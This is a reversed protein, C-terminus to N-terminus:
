KTIKKKLKKREEKRKEKEEEEKLERQMKLEDVELWVVFLGVLILFPPIVGTLVIGFNRLWQIKGIVPIGRTIPKELDAFLGLGIVILLLGVLIKLGTSM